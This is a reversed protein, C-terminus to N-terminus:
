ASYSHFVDIYTERGFIQLKHVGGKSMAWKVLIGTGLSRKPRELNQYTAGKRLIRRQKGLAEASTKQFLDKHKEEVIIWLRDVRGGKSM